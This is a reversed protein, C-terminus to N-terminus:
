ASTPLAALSQAREKIENQRLLMEREKVLEDPIPQGHPTFYQEIEMEIQELRPLSKYDLSRRLGKLANMNRKHDYRIKPPNRRREEEEQRAKWERYERLREQNSKAKNEMLQSTLGMLKQALEPNQALALRMLEERVQRAESELDFREDALAGYESAM